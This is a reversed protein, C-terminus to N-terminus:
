RTFRGAANRIPTETAEMGPGADIRIAVCVSRWPARAPSSVISAGSASSIKMM